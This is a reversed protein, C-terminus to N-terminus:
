GLAELEEATLAEYNDGQPGDETLLTATCKCQVAQPANNNGAFYCVDGCELCRVGTRAV